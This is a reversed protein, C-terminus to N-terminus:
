VSFVESTQLPAASRFMCSNIVTYLRFKGLIILSVYTRYQVKHIFCEYTGADNKELNMMIISFNGKEYQEPFSLVRGKYKPKQRKDDESSNVIDLVTNDDKDRWYVTADMLSGTYICPLTVNEGVLGKVSDQCNVSSPRSPEHSWIQDMWVTFIVQIVSWRIFTETTLQDRFICIFRFHDASEWRKRWSSFLFVLMLLVHPWHESRERIFVFNMFM